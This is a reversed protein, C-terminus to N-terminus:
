SPVQPFFFVAFLNSKCVSSGKVQIGTDPELKTVLLLACPWMTVNLSRAHRHKAFISQGGVGVGGNWGLPQREGTFLM